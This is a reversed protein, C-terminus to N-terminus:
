FFWRFLLARLPRAMLLGGGLAAGATAAEAPNAQFHVFLLAGFALAFAWVIRRLLKSVAFFGSLVIVAIVAWAVTM